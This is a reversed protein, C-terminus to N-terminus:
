MKGEIHLVIMEAPNWFRINVTHTGLGKSVVIKSDGLDYCDGSYKPFIGIQPSIVGGILPLRAIGGHLHGSLTLDAGWARYAKAYDPHHAVLIQYADENSTGIREKIDEVNVWHKRPRRYCDMPLEVGSIRITSDGWKISETDNLLWRIGSTELSSKYIEFADGYYEVQEHMRQEHNGNAAYVPAIEAIKKMFKEAIEYVHAGKRGILMDGGAIIYDPKAEEIAHVLEENDKGYEHNHLDSLFVITLRGDGKKLKETEITYTVTKFHHLERYIEICIYMALLLIIAIIYWKLNQM